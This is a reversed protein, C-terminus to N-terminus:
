YIFILVIVLIEFLLNIIKLQIFQINWLEFRILNEIISLEKLTSDFQINIKKFKIKDNLLMCILIFVLNM